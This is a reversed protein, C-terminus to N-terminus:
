NARARVEAPAATARALVLWGGEGHLTRWGARALARATPSYSPLYACGIGYRAFLPGVEAGRTEMRIHDLVFPAPYPDQRGDIFVRREPAFWLLYGGEDYRNYLNGPCAAIADLAGPAIPQRRLRPAPHLNLALLALAVAVFAAAATLDNRRLRVFSRPDVPLGNALLATLAPTALMLFPGAHRISLVAPVALVAAAACAPENWSPRALGRRWYGRALAGIFVAWIAWFPIMQPEFLPTRRWEDLPYLGIRGLSEAISFWFRWGLPTVFTTAISAAWAIAIRRRDAPERAARPLIAASLVVLGLLVGGHVNSWVLFVPPLWGYRRRTVLWVVLPIFTLSFAHPRPQWWVSSPVLAAAMLVFAVVARGRTLSWATLWGAAILVAAALTVAAAGGARYAGYYFLEALWEHNPWYAGSFTFSYTDHLLVRGSAWMDRGARLQWYTDGQMPSLGAALLVALALLAGLMQRYTLVPSSASPVM